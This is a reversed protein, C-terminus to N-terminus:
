IEHATRGDQGDIHIGRSSNELFLGVLVRVLWFGLASSAPRAMRMQWALVQTWYFRMNVKMAHARQMRWHHVNDESPRAPQPPMKLPWDTFVMQRESITRHLAALAVMVCESDRM